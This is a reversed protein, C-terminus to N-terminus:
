RIDRRLGQGGWVGVEGVSIAVEAERNGWFMKRLRGSEKEM